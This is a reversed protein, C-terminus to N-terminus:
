EDVCDERCDGLFEGVSKQEWEEGGQGVFGIVDLLVEGFDDCEDDDVGIEVEVFGVVVLVDVDFDGVFCVCVEVFLEFVYWQFLQCVMLCVIQVVYECVVYVVYYGNCVFEEVYYDVCYDGWVYCDQGGEEDILLEGQCYQEEKWYCDWDIVCDVSGIGVFVFDGCCSM